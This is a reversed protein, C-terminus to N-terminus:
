GRIEISIRTKLMILGSVAIVVSVSVSNIKSVSTDSYQPGDPTYYFRRSVLVAVRCCPFSDFRRCLTMLHFFYKSPTNQPTV